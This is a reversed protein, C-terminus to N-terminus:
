VEVGNNEIVNKYWYASQKPIRELTNFDHFVIGFRSYRGYAWEFNDYLSWVFYGSINAGLEMAQHVAIVHRKLYDIRASDNVKGDLDVVDNYSAGNESMYLRKPKYDKWIRVLVDRLGEPQIAWSCDTHPLNMRVAEAKFPWEKEDYRYMQPCYYNIGLFDIPESMSAQDSLDPLIAGISQYYEVMDSPFAGWFVADLFWRNNYGDMRAAAGM